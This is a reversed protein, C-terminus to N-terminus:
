HEPTAAELSGTNIPAVVARLRLSGRRPQGDHTEVVVAAPPPDGAMQVHDPEHPLAVPPEAGPGEVVPPGRDHRHDHRKARTAHLGDLGIDHQTGNITTRQCRSGPSAGCEPCWQNLWASRDSM